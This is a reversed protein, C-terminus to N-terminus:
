PSVFPSNPGKPANTLPVLALRNTKSDLTLELRCAHCRYIAGLIPKDQVPPIRISCAPCLWNMGTLSRAPCHSAGAAVVCRFEAVAPQALRNASRHPNPTVPSAVAHGDPIEVVLTPLM